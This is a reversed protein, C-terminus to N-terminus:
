YRRTSPDSDDNSRTVLYDHSDTNLYTDKDTKGTVYAEYARLEQSVVTVGRHLEKDDKATRSNAM